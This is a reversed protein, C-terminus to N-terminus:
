QGKVLKKVIIYQEWAAKLGPYDDLDQQTPAEYALDIDRKLAAYGQVAHLHNMKVEDYQRELEQIAMRTQYTHQDYDHNDPWAWEPIRRVTTDVAFSQDVAYSSGDLYDGGYSPFHPEKLYMSQGYIKKAMKNGRQLKM